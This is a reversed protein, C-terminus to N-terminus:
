AANFTTSVERPPTMWSPRGLDAGLLGATQRRQPSPPWHRNPMPPPWCIPRMWPRGLAAEAYGASVPRMTKSWPGRSFREVAEALKTEVAEPVELGIVQWESLQNRVQVITGRALELPLLYPEPREILSASTLTM